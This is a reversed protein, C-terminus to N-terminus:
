LLRRLEVVWSDQQIESPHLVYDFSWNKQAEIIESEVQRGKLLLMKKVVTIKSCFKMIDNISAFARATLVDCELNVDEVRKNVISVKHSALMSAQMLFAAKRIDAEVLTVDKVGSLALVIGPLGAGSGVDVVRDTPEIFKLLQMSDRIHREYIDDLTSKGILNIKQNWKILLDIYEQM